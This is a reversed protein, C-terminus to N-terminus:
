AKTTPQKQQQQQEFPKCGETDDEDICSQLHILCKGNTSFVRTLEQLFLMSM